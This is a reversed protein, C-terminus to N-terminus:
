DTCIASHLYLIMVQYSLFFEKVNITKENEYESNSNSDYNDFSSQVIDTIFKKQNLGQSWNM